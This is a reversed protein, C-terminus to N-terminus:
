HASGKRARGQQQFHGPGEMVRRHHHKRGIYRGKGGIGQMHFGDIIAQATATQVQGSRGGHRSRQAVPGALWGSSVVKNAYIM